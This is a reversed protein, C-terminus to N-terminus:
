FRGGAARPQRDEEFQEAGDVPRLWAERRKIWLEYSPKLPTPAETLIGLKVEAEQEDVSFVRSGCHRCFCRGQFEATEGSSEFRAAPWIGYFTFASGSEQRCDTCHCIGVRTPEGRVSVKVQGCLCKGSLIAM